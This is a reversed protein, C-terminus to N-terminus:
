TYFVVIGKKLVKLKDAVSLFPLYVLFLTILLTYGTLLSALKATEFLYPFILITVPFESWISILTEM